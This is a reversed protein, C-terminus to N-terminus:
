LFIALASARWACGLKAQGDCLWAKIAPANTAVITRNMSLRAIPTTINNCIYLPKSGIVPWM